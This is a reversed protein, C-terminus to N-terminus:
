LSTTFTETEEESIKRSLRQFSCGLTKIHAAAQEMALPLGGLEEAWHKWINM